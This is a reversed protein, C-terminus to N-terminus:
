LIKMSDHASTYTNHVSMQIPPSLKITPHPGHNNLSIWNIVIAKQGCGKKMGFINWDMENIWLLLVMQKSSDMRTGFVGNDSKCTTKLIRKLSQNVMEFWTKRVGTEIGKQYETEARKTGNEYWMTFVGDKLGFKFRGQEAPTGTNYWTKRVGHEVGDLFHYEARQQGNEHWETWTGLPIDNQIQGSVSLQGGEYKEVFPKPTQDIKSCALLWM